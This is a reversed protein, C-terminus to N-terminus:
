RGRNVLRYRVSEIVLRFDEVKAIYLYLGYVIAGLIAASILYVSTSMQQFISQKSVMWLCLSMISSGVFFHVLSLTFLSMGKFRQDRSVNGVLLVVRFLAAILTALALGYIGMSRVLIFNLIINVVVALTTAVVPPKAEKLAFYFRSLMDGITQFLILGAYIFLVKGTIMADTMVFQNRMFAVIIIEESLMMIGAVAPIVFMLIMQLNDKTIQFVKNYNKEAAYEAQSKFLVSAISVVFVATFLNQIKSAYSLYSASAEPLLSALAKDVVFNIQTATMSILVPLVLIAFLRLHEDKLDIEWEFQFGTKITPLLLWIFTLGQGIVTGVVLPLINTPSSLFIGTIIAINLPFAMASVHLFRNNKQLYGVLLGQIGIFFVNIALIRAYLETLERINGSIGPAFLYLLKASFFYLFVAFGLLVPISLSLIKRFFLDREGKREAQSLVPILASNLGELIIFAFLSSITTAFVYADTYANAGIQSAMSAERIFGTIKGLFSIIMMFLITKKM